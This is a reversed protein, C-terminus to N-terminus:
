KQTSEYVRVLRDFDKGREIYSSYQDYSASAPSLVINDGKKAKTVAIEFAEKLDKCAVCAFKEGCAAILDEKIEGFCIVFKVRKSLRSFLEGYKLDKKSGGLLLVIAGKVTEVCALTSSINTSKSDNIFNFGGVSGVEEIRFREPIYEILAERIDQPKVNYIYGFCVACMANQLNHRGKIHLENVAVLKHQHLYIYGGSIFVDATHKYSYTVTLSDMTPHINDDLNVVAYDKPTLNKFISKKLATYEEMTKHRVLHDPAINTITAVHPSFTEAHELMFSSVEIVKVEKKHELVARSVPYGINGCAIAEYKKKLISTVLETTTTKGNTGTIAVYKKTFFCALELESMIRIQKEEALVLFQNDKEISPSVVIIDFQSILNENLEQLLFCHKIPRSNLTRTDDDYLFVNAKKSTLLKSVWEGSSSLGYVLINKNKIKM